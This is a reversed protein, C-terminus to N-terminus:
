PQLGDCAYYWWSGDERLSRTINGNPDRAFRRFSEVVRLHLRRM